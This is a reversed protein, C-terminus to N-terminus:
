HPFRNAAVTSKPAPGAIGNAFDRLSLQNM